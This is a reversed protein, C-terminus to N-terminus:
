GSLPSSVLSLSALQLKRFSISYYNSLINRDPYRVLSVVSLIFVTSAYAVLPGKFVFSLLYVFPLM